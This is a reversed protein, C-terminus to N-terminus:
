YTQPDNKIIDDMDTDDQGIFQPHEAVKSFSWPFGSATMSNPNRLTVSWGDVIFSVNEDASLMKRIRNALESAYMEYAARTRAAEIQQADSDKRMSLMIAIDEWEESTLEKYIM